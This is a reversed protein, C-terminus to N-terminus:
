TPWPKSSAAQADRQGPEDRERAAGAQRGVDLARRRARKGIGGLRPEAARQRRRDGGIRAPGADIGEDIRAIREGRPHQQRTGGLATEVHLVVDPSVVRSARQEVVREPLGGLAANAHPQQEVVLVGRAEVLRDYCQVRVRVDLHPQEVREGIAAQADAVEDGVERADVPAHVVLRERGVVLRRDDAAAVDAVFVEAGVARDCEGVEVHEGSAGHHAFDRGPEVRVPVAFRGPWRRASIRADCRPSRPSRGM